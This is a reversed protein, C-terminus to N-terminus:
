TRRVSLEPRLSLGRSRCRGSPNRHRLAAQRPQPWKELLQAIGRERAWKVRGKPKPDRPTCRASSRGRRSPYPPLARDHPSQRPRPTGQRNFTPAALSSGPPTHTASITCGCTSKSTQWSSPRRGYRRASGRGDSTALQRAAFATLGLRDALIWRTAARERLATAEFLPLRPQRLWRIKM